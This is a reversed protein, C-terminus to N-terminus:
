SAKLRLIHAMGLSPTPSMGTQQEETSNCMNQAGSVIREVAKYCLTALNSPM